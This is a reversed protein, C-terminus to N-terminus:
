YRSLAQDVEVSPQLVVESRISRSIVCSREAKELLRQARERDEEREIALTPQLFIRTFHYGGDRKELVGDGTVVLAAFKFKSFEAIARFTTIFCTVVAAVFFHEPSWVGPVGQFEPPAGFDLRPALADGEVSGRRDSTWEARARFRYGSDMVGGVHIFASAAPNTVHFAAKGQVSQAL